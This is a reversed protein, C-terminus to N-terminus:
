MVDTTVRGWTNGVASEAALLGNGGLYSAGGLEARSLGSPSGIPDWGSRFRSEEARKQSLLGAYDMAATGRSRQRCVAPGCTMSPTPPPTILSAHWEFASM